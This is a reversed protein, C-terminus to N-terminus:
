AQAWQVVVNDALLKEIAATTYGLEKLVEVSHQGPAPAPRLTTVPAGTMTLPSGIIRYAGGYPSEMSKILGAHKVVPDELAEPLTRVPALGVIGTGALRALAEHTSLNAIGKALGAAVADRQERLGRETLFGAIEDWVGLIDAVRGVAQADGLSIVVHGDRTAYIGYPAAQDVHAIGATSREPVPKVNMVYAAEQALMHLTATMMDIQVWQGEGTAQRHRLAALAGITLYLSAYADIVYAGVPVPPGGGCGTLSAIGTRAQLLLDQGPDDRGPGDQGYASISCYIIDPNLLRIDEYGLGLRAMADPKHNEILIDAQTALRRAVERGAPAKMDLMVARQNRNTALFYPSIGQLKEADRIAYRNLDRWPAEVKVVDAGLDGLCQAALPGAAFHTFAAVRIGSLVGSM